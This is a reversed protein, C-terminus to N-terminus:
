VARPSTGVAAPVGNLWSASMSPKAPTPDYRGLLVDKRGGGPFRLTVTAQGPQKHRRYTSIPNPRRPM